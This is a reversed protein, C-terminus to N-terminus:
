IMNTVFSLLFDIQSPTTQRQNLGHTIYITRKRISLLTCGINNM